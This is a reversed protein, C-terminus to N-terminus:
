NLRYTMYQMMAEEVKNNMQSAPMKKLEPKKRPKVNNSDVEPFDSDNSQKTAAGISVVPKEVVSAHITKHPIQVQATEVTKQVDDTQEEFNHVDM